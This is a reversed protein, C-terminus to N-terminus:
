DLQNRHAYVFGRLLRYEMDIVVESRSYLSVRTYVLMHNDEHM